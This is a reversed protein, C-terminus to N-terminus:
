FWESYAVCATFVLIWDTLHLDEVALIQHWHM